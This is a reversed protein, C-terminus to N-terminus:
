KTGAAVARATIGPVSWLVRKADAVVPGSAISEGGALKSFHLVVQTALEAPLGGPVTVRAFNGPAGSRFIGATESELVLTWAGEAPNAPLDAPGGNKLVVSGNEHLILELQPSSKCALHGASFAAQIGPGPLVFYIVGAAGAEDAVQSLKALAEQDPTRYVIRSGASVPTGALSTFARTEYSTIGEGLATPKMGEKFFLDDHTWGRLHGSLSGNLNFVSIREFNPLGALWPVPCASWSEILARSKLDAMPQFRSKLVDEPKDAQLDYFMPAMASVSGALQAFEPHRPWSALATISIKVPAIGQGLERLFKGYRDLLRDPCDFDLQLGTFKGGDAWNTFLRAFSEVADPSGLFDTEPKIRYVPIVAVGEIEAMPAAIRVADWKGDKWGCEVAQWYLTKTGARRLNELEAPKLANSRHWVWYCPPEM